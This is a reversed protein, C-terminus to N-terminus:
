NANEEVFKKDMSLFTMPRGSTDNLFEELERESYMFGAAEFMGNEVVCVVAKEPDNVVDKTENRSIVIAAHNDQLFKAKRTAGMGPLNLYRGM